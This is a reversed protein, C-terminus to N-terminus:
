LERIGASRRPMRWPKEVFRFSLEALVLSVPVGVAAIVLWHWHYYERMAGLVPGHWLYLGYSRSGLWRLFSLELVPVGLSGSCAWLAGASAVAVVPLGPTIQMVPSWTLEWVFVAAAVILLWRHSGAGAYRRRLLVTAAGVLLAFAATDSGYYVRAAAGDGWVFRLAFSICALVLAVTLLRRHRHVVIIVLPWFLYFQEEIALSWTISLAGLSVGPTLSFAEIWNGFSFAVPLLDPWEFWWPGLFPSVAIVVVVFAILAPLLRRVRRVYFQRLDIGGTADYEQVLLGTILFGSLVFFLTVGMGGFAGLGPAGTHAVVVLAIAM